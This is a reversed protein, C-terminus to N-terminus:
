KSIRPWQKEDLNLSNPAAVAVAEGSNKSCRDRFNENMANTLRWAKMYSMHLRIAAERLGGTKAVQELLQAKGPGFADGTIGLVRIRLRIGHGALKQKPAKSSM